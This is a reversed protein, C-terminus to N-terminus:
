GKYSRIYNNRYKKGSIVDLLTMNKIDEAHPVNKLVWTLLRNLDPYDRDAYSMEVIEKIIEDTIQDYTM